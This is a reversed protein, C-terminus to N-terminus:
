NYIREDDTDDEIVETKGIRSTKFKNMGNEWRDPFGSNVAVM